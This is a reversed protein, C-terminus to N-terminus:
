GTRPGPRAPAMRQTTCRSRSRDARHWRGRRRAPVLATARIDPHVPAWNLRRVAMRYRDTAVLTITEGEIEAFIGTLMPLTDDRSASTAVQAVATGLDAGDVTGTPPPLGPLAPYEEVPLKVLTFEAAGCSLGVSDADSTFEAQAGSLSRTIEALLRGPVLATGPEIVEADAEFRASVDYDFCSLSLVEGAEFLMGSLVPVVPRTPLARAVWTVAETLTDREIRLRM